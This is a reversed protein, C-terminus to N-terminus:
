WEITISEAHIDRNGYGCEYNVNEVRKSGKYKLSKKAKVGQRHLEEILVDRGDRKFDGSSSAMLIRLSTNEPLEEGVIECSRAGHNAADIVMQSIQHMAMPTHVYVRKQFEAERQETSERGPNKAPQAKDVIEALQQGLTKNEM